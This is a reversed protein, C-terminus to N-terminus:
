IRLEKSTLFEILEKSFQVSMVKELSDEFGDIEGSDPLNLNSLLSLSKKFAASSKLKSYDTKLQDKSVFKIKQISKLTTHVVKQDKPTSVFDEFNEKIKASLSKVMHLREVSEANETLEPKWIGGSKTKIEDEYMMIVQRLSFLLDNTEQSDPEVIKSSVIYIGAENMVKHAAVFQRFLDVVEKRAPLFEKGKLESSYSKVKSAFEDSRLKYIEFIHYRPNGKPNMSTLTENIHSQVENLRELATMSYFDNSSINRSIFKTDQNFWTSCSTTLLLTLLILVRM